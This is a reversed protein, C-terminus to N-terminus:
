VPGAAACRPQGNFHLTELLHDRLHTRRWGETSNPHNPPPSAPHAERRGVLPLRLCYSPTTSSQPQHRSIATLPPSVVEMKSNSRRVCLGEDVMGIMGGLSIQLTSPHPLDVCLVTAQAM